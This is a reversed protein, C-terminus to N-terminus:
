PWLVTDLWETMLSSYDLFNIRRDEHLDILFPADPCARDFTATALQGDSHSTVAMGIYVSEGMPIIVPEGERVWKGNQLLYGRFTDGIRVIKLCVPPTIGTQTHSSHSDEGAAPRWQFAAGGGGGATATMFAHPSDDSLTERIMVGAKRWENTSPGSIDTVRLTLQCDGSLPQYAYRFADAQNWIDDGDATISYTDGALKAFSGAPSTDGIDASQWTGTWATEPLDGVLWDQFLAAADLHDVRCNDDFDAAPRAREPLCRSAYLCIDDFYLIGSGGSTVAGEQGVGIAISVLNTVDVGTFDALDIMWEHWSQETLDLTDEGRYAGYVVKARNVPDKLEVWLPHVPEIINRPDGYFHIVLARARALNWNSGIRSSLNAIQAEAKSYRARQTQSMNCPNLAMGDNDYEFKMSQSGSLVPSANENVLAGTGNGNGPSCDGVGDRWVVFIHPGAPNSWIVYPEMDDVSIHDTTTFSWVRGLDMGGANAEGIAWYYTTNLDLPGPSYSNPSQPQPPTRVLPLADPDDGFYVYHGNTPPAYDGRTWTLTPRRSVGEVGNKPSPNWAWALNARFIRVIQQATLAYDYLRIDDLLGDFHRDPDSSGSYDGIRLDYSSLGIPGTFSGTAAAQGDVYVTIGRTTGPTPWTFAVHHWENDPPPAAIVEKKDNPGQLEARVNTNSRHWFTYGYDEWGGGRSFMGRDDTPGGPRHNMWLAITIAGTADFGASRCDIYDDVGDLSIARDDYGTAYFARNMEIGDRGYGSSDSADGDLKYWARLGPDIVNAPNYVAKFSWVPSKYLKGTAINVGDIRWYYYGYYDLTLPGYQGAGTPHGKYEPSSTVANAVAAQNTGFYVRQTIYPNLTSEDVGPTWTLTISLPVDVQGDAPGPAYAYIPLFPKLHGGPIIQLVNESDPGQWAVAVNDGGEHEKHIASIYYRKGAELNVPESQEDGTQWVRADSWSDEFAILSANAPDEDTSLWLESADDSCIWFTYQGSNKIYLWGHIRSGYDDDWNTPGEFTDLFEADDPHDPFRPNSKLDDVDEGDIDMWWERLIQGLGPPVTTFSWVRGAVIIVNFPPHDLRLRTDIRWYYETDYDLGALIHSTPIVSTIYEPSATTANTVATRSAGLYVQYSVTYGATNLDGLSWVLTVSPDVAVFLEGDAPSPNWAEQSIVTFSWVRGSWTVAGDFEDVAWYYTTGGVLPARAFAPIRPDDYGVVYAEPDVGPWLPPSGLSRTGDRNLVDNRNESFYATHTVANKGPTYDLIVYVNSGTVFPVVASEDAPSPNTASNARGMQAIDSGSLPYDYIRVDDIRGPFFHDNDARKGIQVNDPTSIANAASGVLAGDGYWKITTGDYTAAFHHWELDIGVFINRQWNYCHIGYGPDTDAADGVVEIDFHENTGAPGTFGFVNTWDSIVTSDAKAWGAVTRPAAGAIGVQGVSLYDDDGDLVVVQGREAVHTFSIDAGFPTADAGYGSSDSYDGDFKWWGVLNVDAVTAPDPKTRFQWVPGAWESVGDTEVIRWYYDTSYQLLGPEYSTWPQTLKYPPPQVSGFYVKHSTASDGSLWHLNDTIGVNRADDGPDPAAPYDADRVLAAPPIERRSIGPGRYHVQLGEQGNDEFYTVVISHFGASLYIAGTGVTSMAHWGANNVVLSGDIVVQSGDDSASWFTYDGQTQIALYATFRFAFDDNRDRVSIDFDEVAGTKKVPWTNYPPMWDPPNGLADRDITQEYYEYFVDAPVEGCFVLTLVVLLIYATKRCM